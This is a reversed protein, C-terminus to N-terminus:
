DDELGDLNLENDQFVGLDSLEPIEIDELKLDDDSEPMEKDELSFEGGSDSPGETALASEEANIEKTDLESFSKSILIGSIESLESMRPSLSLEM